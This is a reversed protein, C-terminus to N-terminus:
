SNASGVPPVSAVECDDVWRALLSLAALRELAAQEELETTGHAASNRITMQVGPAFQRLGDNMTKVERDKSSGPWRLRPKGPAPERESFVEQWLATEAVDNRGTRTKLSAVLSEAAAAVAHRFHGDRWLRGAAGWVVPHMAEVGVLPVAEAEARAVMAELRGLMQDCAGLVNDPEVVPKPDTISAWNAIPDIKGVGQVMIYSNTIATAELARGASRSVRSRIEAIKAPDTGSRPFVAPAIGRAMMRNIEHLEMFHVFEARFATVADAIFQLYRPSRLAEM